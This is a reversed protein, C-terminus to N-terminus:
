SKSKKFQYYKLASMMKSDPAWQLTKQQLILYKKIDDYVPEIDMNCLLQVPDLVEEDNSFTVTIDSPTTLEFNNADLILYDPSIWASFNGNMAFSYNTGLAQSVFDSFTISYQADVKSRTSDLTIGRRTFRSNYGEEIFLKYFDTDSLTHM